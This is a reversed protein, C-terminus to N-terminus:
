WQEYDKLKGEIRIHLEKSNLSCMRGETEPYYEKIAKWLRKQCCMLSQSLADIGSKAADIGDSLCQIHEKHEDKIPIIDGYKLTPKSIETDRIRELKAFVGEDHVSREEREVGWKLITGMDDANLEEDTM